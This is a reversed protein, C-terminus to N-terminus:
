SRSDANKLPLAQVRWLVETAPPLAAGPPFASWGSRAAGEAEAALEAAEQTVHISHLQGRQFLAYVREQRAAQKRATRLLMRLAVRDEADLLTEAYAAQRDALAEDLQKRLETIQQEHDYHDDARLEATHDATQEAQAAAREATEVAERLARLTGARIVRFM